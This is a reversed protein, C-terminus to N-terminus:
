SGSAVMRALAQIKMVRLYLLGYYLLGFCLGGLHAAHAVNSSHLAVTGVASWLLMIHLWHQAPFRLPIIGLLYVGIQQQPYFKCFVALMGLVVSSLGLCGGHQHDLLLFGLSGALASGVSLSVLGWNSLRSLGHAVERGFSTFALLNFLYHLIGTHSLSSTVLTHWRGQQLNARSLVFHRQLAPQCAPVQWLLFLITSIITTISLLPSVAHLRELHDLAADVLGTPPATVPAPAAFPAPLQSQLDEREYYVPEVTVPEEYRPNLEILSAEVFGLSGFGGGRPVTRREYARCSESFAALVIATRMITPRLSITM